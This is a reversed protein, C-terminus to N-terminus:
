GFTSEGGYNIYLFGDDAKESDYVSSLLASCPMMKDNVFFYLSKDSSLNMRKRIVYMFNALSLDGPCLYKKRDVQPVNNTIRECIVPVRDPYKELIRKSENLRKEFPHNSKFKSKDIKKNQQRHEYARKARFLLEM